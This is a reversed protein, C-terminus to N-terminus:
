CTWAFFPTQDEFMRNETQETNVVLGVPSCPLPSSVAVSYFGTYPTTENIGAVLEPETASAVENDANRATRRLTESYKLRSAPWFINLTFTIEEDTAEWQVVRPHLLESSPFLLM